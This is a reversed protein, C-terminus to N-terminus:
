SKKSTVYYICLYIIYYVMHIPWIIACIYLIAVAVFCAKTNDIFEYSKGYVKCAVIAAINIIFWIVGIIFYVRM